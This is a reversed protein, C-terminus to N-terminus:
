WLTEMSEPFNKLRSNKQKFKLARSIGSFDTQQKFTRSIVEPPIIPYQYIPICITNLIYSVTYIRFNPKM